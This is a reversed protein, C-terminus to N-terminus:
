LLPIRNWTILDEKLSLTPNFTQNYNYNARKLCIEYDKRTDPLTKNRKFYDLCVCQKRMCRTINKLNHSM